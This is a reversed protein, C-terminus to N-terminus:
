NNAGHRRSKMASLPRLMEFAVRDRNLNVVVVRRPGPESLHIEASSIDRICWNVVVDVVVVVVVVLCVVM